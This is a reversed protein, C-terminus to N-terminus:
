AEASRARMTEEFRELGDEGESLRLRVEAVAGPDVTLRYWLAGKTGSRDPSVSAAGAVVHDNIGDKPDATRNAGGWLREFNTENDCALVEPEGDGTLLRRGLERHEALLGSGEARIAPRRDDRGWSWTNRFWLTPLVHLTAREPGANRVRVRLFIDEPAAKAY